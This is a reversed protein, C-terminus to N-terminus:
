SNHQGLIIKVKRERADLERKSKEYDQCLSEFRHRNATRDQELKRLQEIRVEWVCLLLWNVSPHTYLFGAVAENGNVSHQVSDRLEHYCATFTAPDLGHTHFHRIWQICRHFNPLPHETMSGDENLLQPVLRNCSINAKLNPPMRELCANWNVTEELPILIDAILQFNINRTPQGNNHLDRYLTGITTKNEEWSRFFPHNLVDDITPRQARDHSLMSKLLHSLLRGAVCCSEIEDLNTLLIRDAIQRNSLADRGTVLRFIFLGLMFIDGKVTIPITPLSEDEGFGGANLIKDVADQVEYPQCNLMRAATEMIAYSGFDDTSLVRSIGFDCIKLTGNSTILANPARFDRHVIAGSSRLHLERLALCAARVVRMKEEFSLTRELAHITTLGLEQVAYMEDDLCFHDIYNVIGDSNHPIKRFTAIELKSGGMNFYKKIAVRKATTRFNRKISEMDKDAPNQVEIHGGLYVKAESGSGLLFCADRKFVFIDEERIQVTFTGNEVTDILQLFMADHRRQFSRLKGVDIVPSKLGSPLEGVTAPVANSSDIFAVPAPAPIPTVPVPTVPLVLQQQTTSDSYKYSYGSQTGNDLIEPILNVAEFHPAYPHGNTSIRLKYGGVSLQNNGICFQLHHFMLATLRGSIDEVLIISFYILAETYVDSRKVYVEINANLAAQCIEEDTNFDCILDRLAERITVYNVSYCTVPLGSLKLTHRALFNYAQKFDNSQNFNDMNKVVRSAARGRERFIISGAGAMDDFRSSIVAFVLGKGPVQSRDEWLLLNPFARCFSKLGGYQAITAKAELNVRTAFYEYNQAANIFYYLGGQGTIFKWLSLAVLEGM